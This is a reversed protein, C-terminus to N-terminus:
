KIHFLVITKVKTLNCVNLLGAAFANHGIRTTNSTFCGNPSFFTALVINETGNLALFVALTDHNHLSIYTKNRFLFIEVVM